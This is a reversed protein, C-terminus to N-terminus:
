FFHVSLVEGPEEALNPGGQKGSLPTAKPSWTYGLHFDEAGDEVTDAWTDDRRGAWTAEESVTLFNEERKELIKRGRWGKLIVFEWRLSKKLWKLGRVALDKRKRRGGYRSVDCSWLKLTLTQSQVSHIVWHGWGRPSFSSFEAGHSM